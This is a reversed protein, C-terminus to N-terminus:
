RGRHVICEPDVIGNSTLFAAVEDSFAGQLVM